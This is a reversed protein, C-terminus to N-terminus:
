LKVDGYFKWSTKFDKEPAQGTLLARVMEVPMNNERLIRDHMDRNTMKGTEVLERHLGRFQFGGLLYGAQYLPSYGGGFSRRVEAAANDREHGVHEVLFDICEQPTMKGLHFSLSFIIRACRHMRWFLAGVKEEPTKDFGMDWFMLECYLAWGETWFPTHFMQRYPKYRQTMFSQLHHGPILEHFVTAHAFGYNNGRMSMLKQEETMTDTPYSVLIDVGGLFFPAVLQQEPTMMLMGWDEKALPPVTVFDNTEVYGIADEALKRIMEPQKGPDVTNEKVKEVAKHWDDGYGMERSVKIMEGDCWALEKKALAILEEPTYPIMEHALEVLLADRGIPDGVIAEKDDGKIGVVQERLFTRYDELAKDAEKYPEAVWWTFLPDYGNYFTNWRKLAERMAAVAAAARNAAFKQTHIPQLKEASAKTQESEPKLGLAVAKRTEDIQKKIQAILEAAHRPDVTEMRRRGDDLEFVTKAFPFLPEMEAYQKAKIDLSHLQYELENRFLISDVKGELGLKGFDWKGLSDLWERYFERLREDRSPALQLTYRREISRLDSEFREIAPELESPYSDLDTRPPLDAAPRAATQAASGSPYVPPVLIGASLIAATIKRFLFPM